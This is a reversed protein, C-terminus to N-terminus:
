AVTASKLQIAVSSLVASELSMYYKFFAEFKVDLKFHDTKLNNGGSEFIEM